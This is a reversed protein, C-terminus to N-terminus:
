GRGGAPAAPTTVPERHPVGPGVHLPEQAADSGEADGTTRALLSHDAQSRFIRMAQQFAVTLLALRVSEGLARFVFDALPAWAVMFQADRGGILVLPLVQIERAIFSFAGYTFIYAALFLLGGSLMLRLSQFTPLYKDDFDGFLAEQIELVVRRGRTGADARRRGRKDLLLHHEDDLHASLPEGKRWMEALSLVHSGFVLAVVALWLIPEGFSWVFLPWLNDALWAWASDLFDPLSLNIHGLTTDLGANFSAWWSALRTVILKSELRSLLSTGSFILILMFFGELLAAVLGLPRFGTKEHLLDVVRRAIYAGGVVLGIRTYDQLTEARLQQLIGKSFLGRMVIENAVLENATRQIYDFTAYIGLFPLLAMAVSSSLSERGGQGAGGAQDVEASSPLDDEIRAARGLIRLSIIIGTLTIVLGTSVIMLAVWAHRETLLPAVVNLISTLTNAVILVAVVKPMARWWLAVADSGMAWVHAWWQRIETM